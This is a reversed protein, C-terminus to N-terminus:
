MYMVFAFLEQPTEQCHAWSSFQKRLILYFTLNSNNVRFRGRPTHHFGLLYASVFESDFPIIYDSIYAIGFKVFICFYIGMWMHM